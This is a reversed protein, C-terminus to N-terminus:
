FTYAFFIGGKGNNYTPLLTLKSDRKNGWKYKHTYYVINTSLIGVGAGVLVDSVWHKDNMVRLVGVSTAVSYAAVSYLISKHGLEKHMFTAAVFSGATHGSPFSHKNSGDPREVGTTRKFAHVIVAGLIEAKALIITKNIFDNKSETVLGILYTAALPAYQIYDDLHTEFDPYNKDRKSKITYRYSDISLVGSTILVAPVATIKFANTKYFPTNGKPTLELSDTQAICPTIFLLIPLVTIWRLFNNKICNVTM